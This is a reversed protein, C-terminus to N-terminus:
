IDIKAQPAFLRLEALFGNRDAPEIIVNGYDNIQHGFRVIVCNTGFGFRGASTVEQWAIEKKKWFKRIRLCSTDMESYVFIPLFYVFLAILLLLIGMIFNMEKSLSKSSFFGLVFYFAGLGAWMWVVQKAM